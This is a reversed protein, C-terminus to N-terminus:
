DPIASVVIHGAPLETNPRKYSVFLQTATSLEPHGELAFCFRTTTPCGPLMGTRRLHWPGAISPADYIRYAGEISTTELLRLGSPFRGVTIALPQWTASGDTPVQALPYSPLKDLAASTPPLTVSWVHGSRCSVFLSACKASFLTLKGDEFMPQGLVRSPKLKKGSPQPKVIDRPPIAYNRKRWNWMAYGWGQTNIVPNKGKMTVCVISYTILVYSNRSPFVAAGTPWRAAFAAAPQKCRRGSGDPLYAHPTPVFRTPTTFAYETGKPVQGRKSSVLMASSGDIFQTLKWGTGSRNWIGTDGFIWIAHGDPLAVSIGIDRSISRTETEYSSRVPAIRVPAIARPSAATQRPELAAGAPTGRSLGIPALLASACAVATVAVRVRL